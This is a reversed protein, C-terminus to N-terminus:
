WTFAQSVDSCGGTYRFALLVASVPCLPSNPIAILPIIVVRQGLQITKSWRVTIYVCSDAFAIDARTFMRTPNFSAESDPLLHAKRFLGFFAVLCIAWFSAHKSSNLNLRSRIRLLLDITIPLKPKPPVGLTRKIGKLVTSLTWNDSLPNNLGLERHFLGVFNLYLCVSQPLLFRALYAAYLCLLSTSAPATPVLLMDCFKFYTKGHTRYSQKTNESFTANRFFLVDALLGHAFAAM